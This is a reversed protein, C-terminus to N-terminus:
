GFRSQAVARRFWGDNPGLQSGQLIASYMDLWEPRDSWADALAKFIAESSTAADAPTAAVPASPAAAKPEDERASARSALVAGALGLELITCIYMNRHM